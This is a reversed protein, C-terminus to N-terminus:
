GSHTSPDDSSNPNESHVVDSKVSEHMNLLQLINGEPLKPAGDWGANGVMLSDCRLTTNSVPGLIGNAAACNSSAPALMTKTCFPLLSKQGEKGFLNLDAHHSPAGESEL